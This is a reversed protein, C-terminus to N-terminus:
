LRVNAQYGESSEPHGALWIHGALKGGPCHFGMCAPESGAGRDLAVELLVRRFCNPGGPMRADAWAIARRLNLRAAPPREPRVLSRARLEALLPKIGVSRRAAEVGPLITLVRVMERLTAALRLVRSM